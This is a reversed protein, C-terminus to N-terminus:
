NDLYGKFKPIRADIRGPYKSNIDCFSEGYGAVKVKSAGCQSELNGYWLKPNCNKDLRCLRIRKSVGGAGGNYSSSDCALANHADAMQVSCNRYNSKLKLITGRMQYQVQSCDEWNWNKLSPDLRRTEAIADFRVKGNADYAKTFQGLGCGWERSTRLTAKPKWGSEQDILGAPYERVPINGWYNNIEVKLTPLLTEADGPLKAAVSASMLFLQMAFIFWKAWTTITIM